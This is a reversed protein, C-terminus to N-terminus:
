AGAKALIADIEPLHTFDYGLSHPLGCLEARAKILAALVEACMQATKQVRELAQRQAPSMDVDRLTEIDRELQTTHM